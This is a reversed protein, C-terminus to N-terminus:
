RRQHVFVDAVGNTDNPVLGADESMFLVLKGGDAVEGGLSDRTAPSGDPRLSVKTVTGGTSASVFVDVGGATDGPVLDSSASSFAVHGGAESIDVELTINNSEEAASGAKHSILTLAGTSRDRVWTQPQVEPGSEGAFVVFRGDGSIDVNRAFTRGGALSEFTTTNLVTDRVYIDENDDTDAGVLNQTTRFAVFRGDASIAPLDGGAPIQNGGFTLSVRRIAGTALNRVFVDSRGNTDGTVLSPSTSRFAVFRGDSSLVPSDGTAFGGTPTTTVSITRGAAIDRVFVRQIDNIGFEDKVINVFAVKTGDASIDFAINRGPFATGDDTTSVQILAGETRHKRFVQSAGFRSFTEVDSSFAVFRGDPTFRPAFSRREFQQGDADVSMRKTTPGAPTCAGAMLAAAALLAPALGLLKRRSRRRPHVPPTTSTM